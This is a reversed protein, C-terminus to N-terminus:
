RAAVPFRPQNQYKGDKEYPQRTPEDLLEFTIQAIPTGFPLHIIEKSKNFLELTLFGMWKPELITTTVDLGIRALTSKNYCTGRIFDPLNFKEITSGLSFELPQLTIEQDLRVDVGGPSIGYSLSMDNFKIKTRPCLPQVLNLLEISQASLVAM